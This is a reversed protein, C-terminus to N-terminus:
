RNTAVSRSGGNPMVFSGDSADSAFKQMMLEIENSKTIQLIKIHRLRWEVWTGVELRHRSLLDTNPAARGPVGRRPDPPAPPAALHAPM